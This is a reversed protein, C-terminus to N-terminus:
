LSLDTSLHRRNICFLLNHRLHPFLFCNFGLDFTVGHCNVGLGQLWYVYQNVAFTWGYHQVCVGWAIDTSLM